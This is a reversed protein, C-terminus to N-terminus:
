LQLLSRYREISFPVSFDVHELFYEQKRLHESERDVEYDEIQIEVGLDMVDGAFRVCRFYGWSCPHYKNGKFPQIKMRYGPNYFFPISYREEPSTLVRHLPAQYIGNSYIMAMVGTNVILSTPSSPLITTWTQTQTNFVQLTHCSPDPLLITLFGADHHPSIGLVDKEEDLPPYHNLRLFSTHEERLREVIDDRECEGKQLGMSMYGAIESALCECARFYEIVVRRFEEDEPFQNM